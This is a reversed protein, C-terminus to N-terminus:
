TNKRREVLLWLGSLITLVTSGEHGIVALWLPLVNLMSGFLLV